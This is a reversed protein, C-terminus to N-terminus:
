GLYTNLLNQPDLGLLKMAAIAAVMIIGSFLQGKGKSIKQQDQGGGEDSVGAALNRIGLIINIIGGAVVFAMVLNIARSITKKLDVTGAAVSDPIDAYVPVSMMAISAALMATRVATKCGNFSFLERKM